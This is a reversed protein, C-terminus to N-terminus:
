PNVSGLDTWASETDANSVYLTRTRIELNTGNIRVATVVTVPTAGAEGLQVVDSGGPIVSAEDEFYPGSGDPNYYEGM